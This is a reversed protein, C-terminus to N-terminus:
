ARRHGELLKRLSLLAVAAALKAYTDRMTAPIQAPEPLFPRAPIKRSPDGFQHTAAYPVNTGVKVEGPTLEFIQGDRPTYADTSPKPEAASLSNLLIGTDRLMEVQRGGLTQVKTRGTERTAIQGAVQKARRRAQDEPLSALYRRLLRKEANKRIRERERIAENDRIDGPGVRRAAITKPSLPPWKIGFANTGGRAAVVFERKIDSLVALGLVTLMHEGYGTVARTLYAPYSVILAKAREPEGQFNVSAIM